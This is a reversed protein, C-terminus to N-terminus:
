PLSLLAAKQGQGGGRLSCVAQPFICVVELDVIEYHHQDRGRDRKHHVRRAEQHQRHEHAAPDVHEEHACRGQQNAAPGKPIPALQRQAGFGAWHWDQLRPPPPPQPPGPFDSSPPPPRSGCMSQRGTSDM